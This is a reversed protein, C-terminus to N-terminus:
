PTSRLCFRYLISIAAAPITALHTLYFVAYLYKGEVPITLLGRMMLQNLYVFRTLTRFYWSSHNIADVVQSAIANPDALPNIVTASPSLYYTYLEISVLSLIVISMNALIQVIPVLVQQFAETPRVITVSRRMLSALFTFVVVDAALVAITATDALYMFVLGSASAIQAFPM